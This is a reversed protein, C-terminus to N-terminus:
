QQRSGELGKLRKKHDEAINTLLNNNTAVTGVLETLKGVSNALVGVNNTLIGMNNTLTGVISTLKSIDNRYENGESTLRDVKAGLIEMNRTQASIDHSFLEVNMAIADIREDTTRPPRPEEDPM